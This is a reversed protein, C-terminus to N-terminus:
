IDRSRTLPLPAPMRGFQVTVTPPGDDRKLGPMGGYIWTVLALFLLEAVIVTAGAKASIAHNGKM